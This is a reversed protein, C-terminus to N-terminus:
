TTCSKRSYSSGIHSYVGVADRNGTVTRYGATVGAQYVAVFQIRFDARGCVSIIDLECFNLIIFRKAM